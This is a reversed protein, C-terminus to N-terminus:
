LVWECFPVQLRGATCSIRVENRVSKRPNGAAADWKGDQRGGVQMATGGRWGSSAKGAPPYWESRTRDSSSACAGRYPRRCGSLSRRRIGLEDTQDSWGEHLVCRKNSVSLCYFITRVRKNSKRRKTLVSSSIRTNTLIIM